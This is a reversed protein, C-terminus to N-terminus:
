KQRQKHKKFTNCINSLKNYRRIIKCNKCIKRVSSRIKM